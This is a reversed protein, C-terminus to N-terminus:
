IKTETYVHNRIYYVIKKERRRLELAVDANKKSPVRILVSCFVM